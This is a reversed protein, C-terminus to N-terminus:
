IRTSSIIKGLLEDIVRGIGRGRALQHLANATSGAVYVSIMRRGAAQQGRRWATVRQTSSAM